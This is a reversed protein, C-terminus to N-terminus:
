KNIETLFLQIKNSIWVENLMFFLVSVCVYIYFLGQQQKM